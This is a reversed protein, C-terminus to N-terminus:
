LIGEPINIIGRIWPEFKKQEAPYKDGLIMMQMLEPDEIQCIDLRNCPRMYSTCWNDSRPFYGIREYDLLNRIQLIKTMMWRQIDEQTKDYEYMEVRPSLLDLYCDLYLVSFSEITHKLIHELILGYGLQQTNFKYESTRDRLNSRHTKIDLSNHEGTFRQRTLADIYGIISVGRGDALTVGELVM